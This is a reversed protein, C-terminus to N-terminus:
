LAGVLGGNSIRALTRTQMLQDGVTIRGGSCHTLASFAFLGATEQQAKQATLAQCHGVKVRAIRVIM